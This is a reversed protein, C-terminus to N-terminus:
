FMSMVPKLGRYGTAYYRLCRLNSVLGRVIPQHPFHVRSGLVLQM